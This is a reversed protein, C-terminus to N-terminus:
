SPEVLPFSPVPLIYFALLLNFMRLPLKRAICFESILTKCKSIKDIPLRAELLISDLEIGAFSLTTSPGCTKEPALPIGLYSCLSLFLDLQQQCLQASCLSCNHGRVALDQIIAGYKMFAPAEHPFQKTYIGVFVHFSSLWTDITTIKKPQSVPELCLSPVPGSEASQLTIRYQNALVPNTLLSGFEIFEANWIKARLKDSVRVDVPLGVSEFLQGPVVPTDPSTVQPPLGTVAVSADALGGLVISEAVAPLPCPVAPAVPVQNCNAPTVIPVEGTITPVSAPSALRQCVADAVRTILSDMVEAPFFTEPSPTPTTSDSATSSTPTPVASVSPRSSPSTTSRNQHQQNLLSATSLSSARVSARSSARTVRKSSKGKPM